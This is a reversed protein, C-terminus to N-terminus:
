KKIIKKIVIQNNNGVMKLLYIGNSLEEMNITKGILRKNYILKGNITYIFIEANIFSKGLNNFSIIDKFPNPFLKINFDGVYLRISENNTLNDNDYVISELHYFGDDFDYNVEYPYTNDVTILEGNIYFEVFSITGDSDFAETQISTNFGNEIFDNDTISTFTINPPELNLDTITVTNGNTPNWISIGSPLSCNTSNNTDTITSPDEIILTKVEIKDNSVCLWKFQNFSGIDRSWTKSDNSNRLPAGWCGEGVYVTGNIDDREFGEECNIGFLCPKIPWTTKVTHSDSEFVLNVGYDYFLQAWNNYEDNGESKYAVHPKMPKHYQASKWISNDSNLTNQLWAAQNGGASIESNLTYISYLNSGFTIKYYSNINPINFLNPIRNNNFEHNGRAPIIPFMRGDTAITLQWDDFWEQWEISSDDNTMDGGFIVATPKLKSVMTNAYQRPIRNNRSDGGAIFSMAENTNHATKFWFRSSTGESDKIIFFYNTNPTLGTLKTFSNNMGRDFVETETPKYFTYNSWNTGYDITDYYIKANSGSVQEWGIM